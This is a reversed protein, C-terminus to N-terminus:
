SSCQLVQASSTDRSRQYRAQTCPISSIQSIHCQKIEKKSCHPGNLICTMMVKSLTTNNRLLMGSPNGPPQSQLYHPNRQKRKSVSLKGGINSMPFSKSSLFLLIKEIRFTISM